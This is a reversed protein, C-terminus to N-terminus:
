FRYGLSLRALTADRGDGFGQEIELGASAQRAFNFDLMAAIWQQSIKTSNSAVTYDNMGGEVGIRLWEAAERSVRVAPQIGNSTESDFWRLRASVSVETNAVNSNGARLWGSSAKAADNEGDRIGIGAEASYFAGFRGDVSVRYGQQLANSFLSDPVNRTEVTYYNTRNDYALNVALERAFSYRADLLVSALTLSSGEADKLWGRNLNIETSEFVRLKGGQIYSLQQYAFERSVEGARYRGALSGTTQLSQGKGFHKEWALFGGFKTVDPNIRTNQLDPEIGGVAGISLQDNLSYKGYGGDLYGMGRTERLILRGIGAEYPRDSPVYMLMAEYIRNTETSSRGNKLNTRRLKLNTKATFDEGGIKRLTARLSLAPESYDYDMVDRDDQVTYDFGIRGSLENVRVSTRNQPTAAQSSEATGPESVAGGEAPAAGSTEKVYVVAADDRSVKTADPTDCASSKDAVFSVIMRAVESDKRTIVVTDGPAVGSTRGAALYITTPTVYQVTTRVEAGAALTFCVLLALVFVRM